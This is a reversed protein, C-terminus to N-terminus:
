CVVFNNLAKTFNLLMFVRSMLSKISTPETKFICMLLDWKLELLLRTKRAGKILSASYTCIDKIKM